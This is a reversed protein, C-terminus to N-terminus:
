SIDVPRCGKVPSVLRDTSEDIRFSVGRGTVSSLGASGCSSLRMM